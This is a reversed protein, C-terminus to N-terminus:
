EGQPKGRYALQSKRSVARRGQLRRLAAVSRAVGQEALSAQEDLRLYVTEAPVSGAARILIPMGRPGSPIIQSVPTPSVVPAPPPLRRRVRIGCWLVGLLAAGLIGFWLASAGVGSGVLVPVPALRVVFPVARDGLAAHQTDSADSAEVYYRVEAGRSKWAGLRATFVDGELRRMPYPRFVSDHEGLFWLVARGVGDPHTIRVEIPLVADARQPRAPIPTLVPAAEPSASWCPTVLAAAFVAARLMLNTRGTPM